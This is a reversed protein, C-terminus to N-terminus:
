CRNFMILLEFARCSPIQEGAYRAKKAAHASRIAAVLKSDMKDAGAKGLLRIGQAMGVTYGFQQL